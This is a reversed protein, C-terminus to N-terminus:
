SKGGDHTGGNHRRDKGGLPPRHVVGRARRDGQKLYDYPAEPVKDSTRSAREMYHRGMKLWSERDDETLSQHIMMAEAESPSLNFYDPPLGFKLALRKAAREGFPQKEDFYQSARGKTRGCRKVFTPRGGQLVNDVFHILAERRSQDSMYGISFLFPKPFVQRWPKSKALSQAMFKGSHSSPSRPLGVSTAICKSMDMEATVWHRVFPIGTARMSATCSSVPPSTDNCSITACM